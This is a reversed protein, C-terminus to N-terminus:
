CCRWSIGRFIRRSWGYVSIVVPSLGGVLVTLGQMDGLHTIVHWLQAFFDGSGHGICLKPLQRAIITLSLGVIFGEAGARLHVEGFLGLRLLGAMVAALGTIIAPAVTLMAFRGSGVPVLAGVTAASLVAAASMPGVVLRRSGGLAACLVLAGPAAYLGVVPSVGAISAYALAEPVLVV